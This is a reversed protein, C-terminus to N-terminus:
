GQRETICTLEFTPSTTKEHGKTKQSIQSSLGSAGNDDSDKVKLGSRQGWLEHGRTLMRHYEENVIGLTYISSRNKVTDKRGRGNDKRYGTQRSKKNIYKPVKTDVYGLKGNNSRGFNRM